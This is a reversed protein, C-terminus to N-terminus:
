LNGKMCAQYDGLPSFQSPRPTRLVITVQLVSEGCEGQYGCVNRGRLERPFWRERSPFHLRWLLLWSQRPCDAGAVGCSGLVLMSHLIGPKQCYGVCFELRVHYGQSSARGCVYETTFPRCYSSSSSVPTTSNVEWCIRRSLLTPRAREPVLPCGLLLV